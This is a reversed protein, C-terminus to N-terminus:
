VIPGKKKLVKGPNGVITTDNKFPKLVVSGLGVICRYGLRVEPGITANAGIFCSDLIQTPGVVSVSNALCVGKGISVGSGLAVNQFIYTHKDIFCYPSISVNPGIVSGEGIHVDSAIKASPHIITAFRNDPLAFLDFLDLVRSQSKVSSFTALIFKAQEFRKFELITGLRSIGEPPPISIMM